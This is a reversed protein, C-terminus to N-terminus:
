LFNCRNGLEWLWFHCTISEYLLANPFASFTFKLWKCRVTFSSRRVASRTTKRESIFNNYMIKSFFYSLVQHSISWINEGWAYKHLHNSPLSMICRKYGGTKSLLYVFLLVITCTCVFLILSYFPINVTCICELCM